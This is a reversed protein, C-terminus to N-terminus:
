DPFKVRSPHARQFGHFDELRAAASDITGPAISTANNQVERLYGDIAAPAARDKARFIMVPEDMPVEMGTELNALRAFTEGHQTDILVGYKPDQMKLIRVTRGDTRTIHRERANDRQILPKPKEIDAATLEALRAFAIIQDRTLTPGDSGLKFMAVALTAANM